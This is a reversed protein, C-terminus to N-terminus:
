GFRGTGDTDTQGFVIPEAEATPSKPESKLDSDAVDAAGEHPGIDGARLGSERKAKFIREYATVIEDVIPSELSVSRFQALVKEAEDLKGLKVLAEFKFGLAHKYSPDKEYQDPLWEHFKEIAIDALGILLLQYEPNDSDHLRLYAPSLAELIRFGPEVHTILERVQDLFESPNEIIPVKAGIWFEGVEQLFQGDEPYKNLIKEAYRVAIARFERAKVANEQAVLSEATQDALRAVGLLTKAEDRGRVKLEALLAGTPPDIKLRELYKDAHILAQETYAIRAQEKASEDSMQRTAKLGRAVITDAITIEGQYALSQARRYFGADNFAQPNNNRIEDMFNTLEHLQAIVEDLPESSSTLVDYARVASVIRAGPDASEDRYVSSEHNQRWPARVAADIRAGPDFGNDLYGSAKHNLGGMRVAVVAILGMLACVIITLKLYRRFM